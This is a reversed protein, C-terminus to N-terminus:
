ESAWLDALIDVFAETQQGSLFRAFHRAVQEVHPRLRPHAVLKTLHRGLVKTRALPNSEIMAHHIAIELPLMEPDGEPLGDPDLAHLATEVQDGIETWSNAAAVQALSLLVQYREVIGEEEPLPFQVATRALEALEPPLSAEGSAFRVFPWPSIPKAQDPEATLVAAVLAELGRGFIAGLGQAAAEFAESWDTAFHSGLLDGRQLGGEAVAIRTERPKRKQSALSIMHAHAWARQKEDEAFAALSPAAAHAVLRHHNMRRPDSRDGTFPIAGDVLHRPSSFRNANLFETLKDIAVRGELMIEAVSSSHLWCAALQQIPSPGDPLTANVRERCIFQALAVYLRWQRASAKSLAGDIWGRVDDDFPGAGGPRGTLVTALFLKTWPPATDIEVEALLGRLQTEDMGEIASAIARPPKIPLGGFRRLAIALGRESVLAAAAEEADEELRLLRAVRRLDVPLLDAMKFPQRRAARERLDEYWGGASERERRLFHRIREVPPLRELDADLEDLGSRSLDLRVAKAELATLRDERDDRSILWPWPDLLFTDGGITLQVTPQDDRLLRIEGAEAEMDELTASAEGASAIANWLVMEDFDHGGITLQGHDPLEFRARIAPRAIMMARLDEPMANLATGAVLSWRRESEADEEPQVLIAEIMEELSPRIEPRIKLSNRVLHDMAWELFAARRPDGPRGPRIQLASLLLGGIHTGLLHDSRPDGSALVPLPFLGFDLHDLIWGSAASADEISWRDDDWIEALAQTVAHGTDLLFPVEGRAGKMAAAPDPWQLRRRERLANGAARRLAALPESEAVKGNETTPRLAAIMEDTDIPLFQWRAARLQARLDLERSRDIRGYRRLAGLVEATTVVPFNPSDIASVFRDDVWLIGKRVPVAEM